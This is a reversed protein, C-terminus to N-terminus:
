QSKLKNRILFGSLVLVAAGAIVITTLDSNISETPSNAVIASGGRTKEKALHSVNENAKLEGYVESAPLYEVTTTRLDGGTTSNKLVVEQKDVEGIFYSQNYVKLLTPTSSDQSFKDIMSSYKKANGGFQVAEYKGDVLAVIMLTVPQGNVNVTFEWNNSEKIKDLLTESQTADLNNLYNIKFGDGLQILESDSSDNFGFEKYSQRVDPRYKNLGDTAAQLVEDPINAKGEEAYAPVSFAFILVVSLILTRIKMYM